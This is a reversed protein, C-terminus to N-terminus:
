HAAFRTRLKRRAARPVLLMAKSRVQKMLLMVAECFNMVPRSTEININALRLKRMVFPNVKGKIVLNEFPINWKSSAFWKTYKDTRESGFIEFEWANEAPDLVALLVERKWVSMVTSSRYWDGPAIAGIQNQDACPPGPTPNLRLYDWDDSVCRNILQVISRGDVRDVVFLDDLLLIVYKEPVSLLAQALNASWGRDEGVQIVAVDAVGVVM